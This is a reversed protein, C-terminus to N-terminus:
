LRGPVVEASMGFVRVTVRGCLLPTTSATLVALM